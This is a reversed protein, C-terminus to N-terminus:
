TTTQFDFVSPEDFTSLKGAPQEGLISSTPQTTFDPKFYVSLERAKDDDGFALHLSLARM